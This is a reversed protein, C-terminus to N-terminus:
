NFLLPIKFVSNGNKSGDKARLAKGIATSINLRLRLTPNNKKRRKLRLYNKKSTASKEEVSALRRKEALEEKHSDRYKKNRLKAKANLDERHNLDYEKIKHKNKNRYRKQYERHKVKDDSM